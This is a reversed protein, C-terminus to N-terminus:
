WGHVGATCRLWNNCMLRDVIYLWSSCVAYYMGSTLQLVNICGYAVQYWVAALYTLQHDSWSVTIESYTTHLAQSWFRHTYMYLTWYTRWTTYLQSAPKLPLHTAQFTGHEGYIHNYIFYLNNLCQCFYPLLLCRLNLATINQQGTVIFNNM